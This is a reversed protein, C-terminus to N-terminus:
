NSERSGARLWEAFWGVLQSKQELRHRTLPLSTTAELIRRAEAVWKLGWPNPFQNIHEVFEEVRWAASHFGESETQHRREYLALIAEPAVGAIGSVVGDCIGERLAAALAADSGVIRAAPVGRQTLDRLIELSGSSDKIGVLNPVEEILRRVTDKELGSTFQPLNYLLVPRRTAGAVTRCFLDLDEQAYPFFYPMPLLLGVAEESEAVRALEICQAASAAGVCCLMRAKGAGAARITSLMTRLQEPSTLCFEGTAGNVAFSSIGSQTLFEVLKFLAPVDISGEANRPTLLAAFVGSIEVDSMPKEVCHAM